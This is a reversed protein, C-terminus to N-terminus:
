WTVTFIQPYLGGTDDRWTVTFEVQTGSTVPDIKGGCGSDVFEIEDIDITDGAAVDLYTNAYAGNGIDRDFDTVPFSNSDDYCAPDYIKNAVTVPNGFKLYDFRWSDCINDPDTLCNWSIGFGTLRITSATNNIFQWEVESTTGGNKPGESGPVVTLDDNCTVNADFTVSTGVSVTVVPGTAGNASITVNGAGAPSGAALLALVMTLLLSKKM